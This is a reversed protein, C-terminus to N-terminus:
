NYNDIKIYCPSVQNNVETCGEATKVDPLPPYAVAFPGNAAIVDSTNFKWSRVEVDNISEGWALAKAEAYTMPLSKNGEPQNEDYPPYITKSAYEEDIFECIKKFYDKEFEDKLLNDWNNGIM